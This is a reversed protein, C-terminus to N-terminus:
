RTELFQGMVRASNVLDKSLNIASSVACGFVGAEMLSKIDEMQIGGVAIVPAKSFFGIKKIGALGLVPSLNKKTSTFRFPGLGIYDVKANNLRKVDEETNATGGIIFHDGLTKRAEVPNMDEKGLHVGDAEVEKAIIVNDNIILKANYRVCVEKVEKAIKTWEEFSKGKVRLQVWNVGGKCAEEALFTHSYESIDQTIYHLRSIIKHM